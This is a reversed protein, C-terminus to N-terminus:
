AQTRSRQILFDAVETMRTLSGSLGGQTFYRGNIGLAPVADIKYADSLQRARSSKNNVGFGTYADRFKAKDLGQAAAWEFIESETLLRKNQIHMAAFVRRHMTGLQGLEELAFYLRQHLQHMPTFGVHVQRFAVDAPLRKLWAELLPEFSNCHPCGYWFFEVVEIKKGPPLSVTAPTGLRVFHTGEIFGGQAQAAAPVLALPAAPLAALPLQLLERRKM